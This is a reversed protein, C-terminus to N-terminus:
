QKLGYGSDLLKKTIFATSLMVLLTIVVGNIIAVDSYGTLSYRFGDIFYFFPNYLIISQMKKPLSVLPYFTCSLFSLPIITCATVAYMHGFDKSLIGTIMGLMSLTASASIAFYILSLFDTKLLNIQTFPLLVIFLLIGTCIAETVAALTHSILISASSLPPFLLEYVYGIVKALVISGATASFASQLILQMCLGCVMLDKQAIGCHQGSPLGISLNLVAFLTVSSIIPAIIKQGANTVFKKIEKKYLSYCGYWNLNRRM